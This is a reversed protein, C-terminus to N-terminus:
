HKYNCVKNLGVNLEVTFACEMEFGQTGLAVGVWVDSVDVYRGFAVPLGGERTILGM